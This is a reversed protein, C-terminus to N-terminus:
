SGGRRGPSPGPTLNNWQWLGTTVEKTLPRDLQRAAMIIQGRHHAEHAIFYTLLHMVDNPFNLWPPQSPLQGGNDICNGLLNLMAENSGKLAIIVEKRTGHYPDIRVLTKKIKEKVISKIWMCRANHLHIALMGITKRPFGPIRKNWLDTSINKILYVSVQNSVEWTKLSAEVLDIKKQM